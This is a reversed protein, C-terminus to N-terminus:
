DVVVGKQKKKSSKGNSVFDAIKQGIDANGNIAQFLSPATQLPVRGLIDLVYLNTSDNVLIVTGKVRGGSERVYVDFKRGQYRSTMMEEYSESQYGKLLLHYDADSFTSKTKNVILFRMKEIDKILADFEPSDKQNLMRLTNKYFYLKFGDFKKELTETTKTQALLNASWIVSLVLLLNKM